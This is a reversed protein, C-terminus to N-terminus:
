ADNGVFILAIIEYEFYIGIISKFFLLRTYSNQSNFKARRSYYILVNSICIGQDFFQILNLQISVYIPYYFGNIRIAWNIPEWMLKLYFKLKFNFDYWILYKKIDLFITELYDKFKKYHFVKWDNVIDNMLYNICKSWFAICIFIGNLPSLRNIPIKLTHM